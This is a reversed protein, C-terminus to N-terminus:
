TCSDSGVNELGKMLIIKQRQWIHRNQPDHMGACYQCFVKLTIMYACAKGREPRTHGPAYAILQSLRTRFCTLVAGGYGSPVSLFLPKLGAM